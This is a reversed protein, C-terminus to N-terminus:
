LGTRNWPAHSIGKTGDEFQGIGYVVSLVRVSRGSCHTQNPDQRTTCITSELCSMAQTELTEM